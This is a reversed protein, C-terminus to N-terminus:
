HVDPLIPNRLFSDGSEDLTLQRAHAKAQRCVAYDHTGPTLGYSRCFFDDRPFSSAVGACDEHAVGIIGLLCGDAYATVTTFLLFFCAAILRM